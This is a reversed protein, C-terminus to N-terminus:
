ILTTQSVNPKANSGDATGGSDDEHSDDSTTGTPIHEAANETLAGGTQDLVNLPPENRTIPESFPVGLYETVSLALTRAISAINNKIWEADDYNDHYATEVLVAPANTRRIEPLTTNPIVTVLNPNPYIVKLNDAFIGAAKRGDDSYAYYYVDPGQLAGPMTPPAANSHLALHLDYAKENSQEIIEALTDRPNNRTVDIGSATLYPMMADAILNMYYEENGGNIYPNFEQVSPSLYISPM